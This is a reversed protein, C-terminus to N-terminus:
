QVLSGAAFKKMAEMTARKEQGHRFADFQLELVMERLHDHKDVCHRCVFADQTVLKRKIKSFRYKEVRLDPGSCESCRLPLEDRPIWRKCDFCRFRPQKSKLLALEERFHFQVMALFESPELARRSM